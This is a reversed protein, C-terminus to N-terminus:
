ARAICQPEFRAKGKVTLVHIFRHRRNLGPKSERNSLAAARLAYEGARFTNQPFQRLPRLVKPNAELKFAASGGPM